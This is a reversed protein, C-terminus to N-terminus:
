WELGCEKFVALIYDRPDAWGGHLFFVEHFEDRSINEDSLENLLGFMFDELEADIVDEIEGVYTFSEVGM